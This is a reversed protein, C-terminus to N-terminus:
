FLIKFITYKEDFSLEISGQYCDVIRKVNYLGYGRYKGEKTSFGREFIHNIDRSQITEGTNKIEIVKYEEEIGLLLVIRNSNDNNNNKNAEIANDLLNGLLEVLEYKELPYQPIENLFEIYFAIGKEEALSKKSYIIASLIPEKISLLKDTSKMVKIVTELYQKMEQKAQQDDELQVLGYLASLHNKFDHQSQRIEHVMNELFPMYKEHTHIIKQQEKILISQYLFFINLGEWAVMVLLLYTVHDWIFDKDIQWIYMILLVIGGINVIITRTYKGYKAYYKNIKNIITSKHIFISVILMIINVILGSLFSYTRLSMIQSLVYTCILQISFIMILVIIFQFITDKVSVKFLTIIMVCLVVFNVLFEIGVSYMNLIVATISLTIIISFSRIDYINLQNNLKSWILLIAIMELISLIFIEYWQM